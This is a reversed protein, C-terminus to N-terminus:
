NNVYSIFGLTHYETLFCTFCSQRQWPVSGADSVFYRKFTERVNLAEKKQRHGTKELERLVGECVNNEPTDDEHPRPPVPTGKMQLMNHLVCTAKVVVDVNQPRLPIKRHFL